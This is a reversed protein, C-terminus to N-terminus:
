SEDEGPQSVLMEQAYEIWALLPHRHEHYDQSWQCALQDFIISSQKLTDLIGMPTYSSHRTGLHAVFTNGRGGTRHHSTGQERDRLMMELVCTDRILDLALHLAILLDNRMVKSTALMGKFWFDNAMQAFREAAVELAPSPTLIARTLTDDVLSSRSFLVRVAESNMAQAPFDSEQIISCDIRRFDTFCVRTTGGRKNTSQNFTYLEGLSALWATTPFFASLKSDAVVISVDIDSWTDLQIHSNAYSGKLLLARVVEDPELLAILEHLTAEQWLGKQIM